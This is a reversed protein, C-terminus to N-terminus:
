VKIFTGEGNDVTESELIETVQHQCYDSFILHFIRSIFLEYIKFQMGNQIVHHFRRGDCGTGGLFHIEEKDLM